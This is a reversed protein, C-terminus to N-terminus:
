VEPLLELRDTHRLGVVSFHRRDLTAVRMEGLREAVTLVAADVFGLRLDAYSILLESLRTYDQASLDEVAFAGRHVDDLFAAFAAAPVFHDLEVLM